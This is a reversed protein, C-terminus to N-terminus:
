EGGDLKNQWELLQKWKGEYAMKAQRPWTKPNHVNFRDGGKDLITQCKSITCESLAKWTKVGEKLFLSEIKPGIGEVIKLDNFKIRKGYVARAADSDFKVTSSRRVRTPKRQISTSRVARSTRLDAELRAVRDKWDEIESDCDRCDDRGWLYGLRACILGALLPILWCWINLNEFNM